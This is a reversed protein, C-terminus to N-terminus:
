RRALYGVLTFAAGVIGICDWVAGEVVSESRDKLRWSRHLASIRIRHTNWLRFLEAATPRNQPDRQMGSVVIEDLFDVNSYREYIEAKLLHGITYVDVPFPDYPINESLEPVEQDRGLDGTVLQRAQGVPFYSSIGYDVYYYRVGIQSRTLPWAPSKADPLLSTHVPHFGRPFLSEADMLINPMSCDRHAVGQEHMFVLGELIQDVFDVVDGVTRFEPSNFYRLFPMVMYSTEPNEEDVFLDLVPVSHNRSDLRMDESSLATAISPELGGTPVRKIYVLKGDSVRTADVLNARAPLAIGDECKMPHKGNSLWSPTWGPRLRPRLLYGKSQLFIQRDRWRIESPYLEALDNPIQLIAELEQRSPPM